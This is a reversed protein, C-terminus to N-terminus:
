RKTWIQAVPDFVWTQAERLTIPWPQKAIEDPRLIWVDKVLGSIDVTYHVTQKTSTLSASMVLMNNRGRIRVGPALRAAQGNVSVEPVMGFAMDGRLATQPFTRQMQAAAPSVWAFMALALVLCRYM